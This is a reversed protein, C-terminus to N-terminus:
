QLRWGYSATLDYMHSDQVIGNFAYRVWAYNAGFTLRPRPRYQLGFGLEQTDYRTTPVYIDQSWTRMGRASATLNRSLPRGLTASLSDVLRAGGFGYAQQPMRSYALTYTTRQLQGTLSASADLIYEYMGQTPSSWYAAGVSLDGNTTAGLRRAWSASLNSTRFYGLPGQMRDWRYEYSLTLRDLESVTHGLGVSAVAQEGNYLSSGPFDVRNYRAGVTLSTRTSLQQSLDVSATNTRILTYPYILGAQSLVPTSQTYSQSLTDRLQLSTHPGLQRSWNLSAAYNIRNNGLQRNDYTYTADASAGFQSLVSNRTYALTAGARTTWLSAVTSGSSFGFYPNWYYSEQGHVTLDWFATPAGQALAPAPLGAGLCVLWTWRPVRAAISARGM